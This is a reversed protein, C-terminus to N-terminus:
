KISKLYGVIRNLDHTPEGVQRLQRDFVRMNPISKLAFQRAVPTNWNVIDIKVLALQQPNDRVMQELYPGIQRCPGCWDAYFDVLTIRGPSMLSALDVQQGGNSIVRISAAGAGAQASAAREAAAAAATAAQAAAQATVKKLHPSLEVLPVPRDKELKIVRGEGDFQVRWSQYLWLPGQATELIGQPPGLLSEVEHAPKGRLDETAAGAASNTAPVTAEAGTLAGAGGMALMLVVSLGFARWGRWATAVGCANGRMWVFQDDGHVQFDM